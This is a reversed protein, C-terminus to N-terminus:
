SKRRCTKGGKKSGYKKKLSAITRKRGRAVRAQSEKKIKNREELSLEGIDRARTKKVAIGSEKIKQWSEASVEYVGHCFSRLDLSKLVILKLLKEMDADQKLKFFVTESKM